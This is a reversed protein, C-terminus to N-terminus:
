HHSTHRYLNVWPRPGESKATLKGEMVEILVNSITLGLRLGGYRRYRMPDAQEFPVFLKSIPEEGTIIFGRQGAEADKVTSLLREAEDIVKRRM